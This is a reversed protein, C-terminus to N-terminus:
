NGCDCVAYCGVASQPLASSCLCSMLFVILSFCVARDEEDLYNISLVCLLAYWVLSWCMVRVFLPLHM